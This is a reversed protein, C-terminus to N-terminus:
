GLRIMEETTWIKVRRQRRLHKDDSWIGDCSVSLAAAVFPTDEFDIPAMIKEAENWATLVPKSQIVEIGTMLTDLALEIEKESLGSKKKIIDLHNRVEEIAYEPLYLQHRPSLLIARVRSNRILAKLVVNTDLVLKM